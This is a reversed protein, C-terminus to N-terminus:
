TAGATGPLTKVAPVPAAPGGHMEIGENMFRKVLRRNFAREVEWSRAPRTKFLARLIIQTESFKDVGLIQPADLLDACMDKYLNQAEECLVTLAFDVDNAFTIGIRFDVQSWDSTMNRVAKIEGNPLINLSGDSSRLKTVRMTFAEVLGSRGSIEVVDGVAFQDELLIFFGNLYDRVLSQAGFGIAVSAVGATALLPAINLGVSQLASLAAVVFVLSSIFYSGSVRLTESRLRQRNYPNDDHSSKVLLFTLLDSFFRSIWVAVFIIGCIRFIGESLLSLWRAAKLAGAVYRVRAASRGELAEAFGEIWLLLANLSLLLLVIVFVFRLSALIDAGRKLFFRDVLTLSSHRQASRLRREVTYRLVRGAAWAVFIGISLLLLPVLAAGWLSDRFSELWQPDGWAVLRTSFNSM